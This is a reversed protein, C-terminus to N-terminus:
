PKARWYVLGTRNRLRLRRTNEKELDKDGSPRLRDQPWRVAKEMQPETTSHTQETVGIKQTANAVTKCRGAGEVEVERLTPIIQEAQSKKGRPM